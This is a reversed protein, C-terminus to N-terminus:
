FVDKVEPVEQFGKSKIALYLIGVLTWLGGIIFTLRPLSQWIFFCAIIGVAPPLFNKFFSKVTKQEAKFYYERISAANVLMFALFAGFNILHACKDYSLTNAGILVIVGILMINYSPGAHKKDLHGFFKKPLMNDRGMGYMVRAAGVQGTVGSGISGILLIFTLTVELVHGGVVNAVGIIAKELEHGAGFKSVM